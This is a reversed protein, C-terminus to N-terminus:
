GGCQEEHQRRAEDIDSRHGQIEESRDLLQPIDEGCQGLQLKTFALNYLAFAEVREGTGSLKQVAEELVPLAEEFRGEEMLAFGEDNLEAGSREEEQPPPTTVTETQVVTPGPETTVVTRPQAPQEAREEDGTLLAAAAIGAIAAALVGAALLPWWARDRRPPPAAVVQEWTTGAAEFLARRLDAVLKACSSYREAPDKALARRFVADVQPPLDPRRSSASPVPAHVHASAEVAPTDGAFPRTGTLLEFAVVALAYRDSAPTAREGLAQEPALYGATGLVTGTRTMSDLGAATAIGFDAVRVDGERDLLLNAPKVDRHVVGNAHAADLARAAQDLWALARGAEQAGEGVLVDELSGGPLYEMVIFPRDNWEGVDYIDIVNPESSLRAASLAERKFRGRVSEDRSYREALIKIAVRRGLTEDGARYIEGMGGRGIPQPDTYRPPLIDTPVPVL